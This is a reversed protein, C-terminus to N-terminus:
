RFLIAQPSRYGLKRGEVREQGPKKYKSRVCYRLEELVAAALLMEIVLEKLERGFM